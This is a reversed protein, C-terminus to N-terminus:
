RFLLPAFEVLHQRWVTWTHGGPSEFWTHRIGAKELTEHTAKLAAYASDETGMGLWLLPVQGNFASADALRGDYATAPDLNRLGSSFVGIHSFLDLHAVGIRMAQGGGMSLGAIARSERDAKTRYTADIFPVLDRVVIEDFRTNGGGGRGGGPAPVMGNENVVIMPRIRGDALLNDLIFQARGQNTWSTQNEGSGHQLYLVPYRAGTDAEYGPPTYVRIPRWQQMTKSFYWHERVVGHPVDRPAGLASQPGPVELASGWRNWGYYTQSGPDNSVFGDVNVTYYYFGPAMPTATTGRWFGEDGRDLAITGFDPLNVSVTRAEDARVRFTVTGDANIRPFAGGQINSPAPQGAPAQAVGAPGGVALATGLMAVMLLTRSM